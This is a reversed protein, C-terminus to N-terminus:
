LYIQLYAEREKLAYYIYMAINRITNVNDSSMLIYKFFVNLPLNNNVNPLYEQRINTSFPCELIFHCKDEVYTECYPCTCQESILGIYRGEEIM